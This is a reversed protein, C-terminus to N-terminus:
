TGVRHRDEQRRENLLDQMEKRYSYFDFYNLVYEVKYEWKM